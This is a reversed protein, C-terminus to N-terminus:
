RGVESPENKANSVVTPGPVSIGATWKQDQVLDLSTISPLKPSAKGLDCSLLVVKTLTAFCSLPGSGRGWHSASAIDTRKM